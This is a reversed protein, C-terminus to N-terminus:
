KKTITKTIEKKVMAEGIDIAQVITKIDNKDAPKGEFTLGDCTSLKTKVETLIETLETLGPDSRYVNVPVIEGDSLGDVSINLAKCIKIINRVSSNDLGRKLISDITSQSMDISIAFERISNYRELIYEKLKDEIM